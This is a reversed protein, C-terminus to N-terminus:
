SDESLARTWVDLYYAYRADPDDLNVGFSRDHDCYIREVPIERVDLQARWAKAWLELPMAYGPETLVLNSLAGMRYAKFGCFSDTLGWGTQANVMATIRQNIAQRQPPAIGVSSSTPLYRSGSIIDGGQELASLFQPIHAPEHQGDCDMTILQTVGLDCAVRYGVRLACGYGCNRDLHVVSVDEREALVRTTEDTSGDDVVIVEGDFFSRVADLVGGVTPGENYVPLLVADSV